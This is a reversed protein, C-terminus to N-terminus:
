GPSSEILDVDTLHTSFSSVEPDSGEPYLYVYGGKMMEAIVCRQGKELGDLTRALGVIDGVEIKSTMTWYEGPEFVRARIGSLSRM